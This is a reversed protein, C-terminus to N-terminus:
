RWKGNRSNWFNHRHFDLFSDRRFNNINHRTKRPNYHPSCGNDCSDDDDGDDVVDGSDGGDDDDDGADDDSGDDGSDGSDGTGDDSGGDDSGDDNGSDDDGDDSLPQYSFDSMILDLAQGDSPARGEFLWFNMIAYEPNSPIGDTFTHDGIVEGSELTSTCRVYDPTWKITHITKGTSESIKYGVNHGSLAYPQVSYWLNKDDSDGWKAIEIDLEQTDDLYTFLGVVSNKDFSYAPSDVTWTFTGYQYKNPSDVESCTWTGGVKQISLHLRGQDDVYVGDESWTNHGPDGVGSSVDWTLGKWSIQGDSPYQVASVPVTLVSICAMFVVLPLLNIRRM